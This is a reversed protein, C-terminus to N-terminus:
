TINYVRSLVNVAEAIDYIGTGGFKNYTATVGNDAQQIQNDIKKVKDAIM